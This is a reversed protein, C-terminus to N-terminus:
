RGFFRAFVRKEKDKARTELKSEGATDPQAVANRHLAALSNSPGWVGLEPRVSLPPLDPAAQPHAVWEALPALTIDASLMLRVYERAQAARGMAEATHEVVHVLQRGLDHPDGAHFPTVLRRDALDKALECLPTTLVPLGAMIWDLIRNRHGVLAEISWRDINIAANSELYYNPMDESPVWGCLRYRGRNPSGEVMQRFREFTRDDHGPIAGGTSVFLIKANKAMALELGHFLTDVDTWTNYGGSWLLVFDDARVCIGRLVNRTHEFTTYTLHYPVLVDVLSTATTLRNLRGVAGLEGLLMYRQRDSCASFHDGALLSPVVFEWQGALGADSAYVDGLLQRESMPQGNFDLWLPIPLAAKVAVLNMYDTTSVVCRPCHEADILRLQEAAVEIDYPLQYATIDHPLAISAPREGNTVPAPTAAGSAFGVSAIVVRFDRDALFQAFAWTRLGPAHLRPPNEPPLPGVGLVLVTRSKEREGSM